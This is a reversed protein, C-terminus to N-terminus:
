GIRVSRMSLSAHEYGEWIFSVPDKPHSSGLIYFLPILHDPTPVSLRADQGLSLYNLVTEHNGSRLGEAIAEDFRVNWGAPEARPNQFDAARLNHVINGSGCILVGEERLVSLERGIRYHGEHTLGADISLQFVPIDADPFLHILVSWAGHDLGMAPDALVPVSRILNQVREATEPSGPAPYTIRYLEQPFGYFDYITEPHTAFSVGTGRTYWHASIMLIAQVGTLKSGTRRLMESWPSTGLANMPSGHAFFFAPLRNM